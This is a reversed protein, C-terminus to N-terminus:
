IKENEKSKKHMQRFLNLHREALYSFYNLGHKEMEKEDSELMIDEMHRVIRNKESESYMKDKYYRPMAIKKNDKIPVYMRNELDDKHWRIMKETLYNKGLGKSMLQFEKQRDDNKHVPIKGKKSMYKLTYGISADTVDGIFISGIPKKDLTWAKHVIERNANFLIIHYHPRCTKSGYEGVAYYKLKNCSLKRLRKFFKQVDAKSLNKFGKETYHLNENEYTLTVFLASKSIDGEKILRFSWGSTKRKLCAPCKGCPVPIKQNTWKAQM